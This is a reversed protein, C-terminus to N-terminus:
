FKKLKFTEIKRESIDPADGRRFEAAQAREIQDKENQTQIFTSTLQIQASMLTQMKQLQRLIQGSLENGAQIAELRGTASQSKNQLQTILAEDAGKQNHLENAVTLANTATDGLTSSLGKYNKEFDQPSIERKWHEYGKYKDSMKKALDTTSYAISEGRRALEALRNLQDFTNGWDGKALQKSNKIQDQIMRVQNATQSIQEAYSTVLQINNMIQTWETGCNGCVVPIANAVSTYTVTFSPIVLSLATLITLGSKKM